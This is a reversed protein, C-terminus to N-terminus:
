QAPVQPSGAAAAADSTVILANGDVRRGLQALCAALAARAEAVLDSSEPLEGRRTSLAEQLLPEAQDPAGRALLLEGYGLLASATRLHGPPLVERYIDISLRYRREAEEFDGREQHLRALHRHVTATETNRDGYADSYIRLSRAYLAEAEDLRDLHLLAGALSTMTTAVRPHTEGSTRLQLALAERYMPLARESDGSEVFTRALNELAWAVDAHDPGHVARFIALAETLPAEARDFSGQEMLLKAYNVLAVGVRAHVDGYLARRIELSQRYMTGAADLDGLKKLVIALDNLTNAVDPHVEGFLSRQRDLVDRFLRAAEEHDGAKDRGRAVMRTTHITLPHDEGLLERRMALASRFLSDAVAYDALEHALGGLNHLSEALLLHASPFIAHRLAYSEELLAEAEDFRQRDLFLLGLHDLSRALETSDTQGRRLTVANELLSQARDYHGLRRYVQGMVDYMRAQVTPQDSLEDARAVGRELLQRATITDGLAERPDNAAFLGMLFASVEEAERLAQEARDRELRAADRELAVTQAQRVTVASFGILVMLFAAAVSVGIRHRRVFKSVTYAVTEKRAAVPRGALYRGVDDAVQEASAYRREPEKRLATMVINDLDGRLMRRLRGVATARAASVREPTLTETAGDYRRIEAVDSVVTSPRTPEEECIIREVEAQRRAPLRYPRHGTLLEYLLVGLAYVDAATTIPEGRVQEPAAYEPTMVLLESRTQVVPVGAADPDLLKAIGFDLLKIGADETVLINSPKLDRHVVLNSHAFQVVRCVTQFLRLREAISLRHEDCYKTLPVGTVYEMVLYPVGEETVGGDLLRAIHPHELRALIQREVRFRTVIESTNLGPRILKLAVQQEFDNERAARYVAGMGGQGILEELRYSGIRRGLMVDPTPLLDAEGSLLRTELLLAQSREHVALMAEVEGRLDPDGECAAGLFRAREETDRDLAGFFLTEIQDWRSSSM